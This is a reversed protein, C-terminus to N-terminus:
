FGLKQPELPLPLVKSMGRWIRHQEKSCIRTSKEFYAMRRKGTGIIVFVFIWQLNTHPRGGGGPPGYRGMQSFMYNRMDRDNRNQDCYTFHMAQSFVSLMLLDQSLLTLILCTRWLSGCNRCFSLWTLGCFWRM